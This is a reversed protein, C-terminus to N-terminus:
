EKTNNQSEKTTSEILDDFNINEKEFNQQDEIVAEPLKMHKAIYEIEEAVITEKVILAEKILELLQKNEVLIEQAKQEAEVIIKRVALDIEQAVKSSFSATKAYDRGLFPNSSDEEYKIPGLDSMGWETVMRRAISTAKAIDDSAGTSVNEDGYILREAARGGMFSTIIAILDKKTKNYKEEEPMMLNYGGADGRPIITIKQVKNGGPMKIGVVAHGAEHYAVAINEKESITRSKKAPGAMVRDIAEDIQKLTIANTKERVSLLSAENVVNELQAGSFGPTRKAVNSFEVSKDIRKGRAHLKLIAEREKIDPLGVTITRDFRGPRLLAPDLVDTRNTAAMILIGGNETIGDMEVLLQNLTQEREDNGGGVGAGRSRGVADLEDIFIIAPAEKRAAAFMERVRKAGMGVYLEVFNSASIFFFPVNAEGATAKAILTKGTGPPGGLLIGKPIRAGAASYKKPNKLYDVLEMVEEKVEENGAIDSFRTKSEIKIAKSNGDGSFGTLKNYQKKSYIMSFLIIGVLLLTPIFSLVVGWMSKKTGEIVSIANTPNKTALLLDNYNTTYWHERQIASAYYYATETHKGNVYEVIFRSSHQDDLFSSIYIADNPDAKSAKVLKNLALLGKNVTNDRTTLWITLVIAVIVLIIIMLIIYKTAKSNWFSQKKNNKDKNNKSM